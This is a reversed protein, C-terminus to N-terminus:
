LLRVCFMFFSSYSPALIASSLLYLSFFQRGYQKVEIEKGKARESARWSQIARKRKQRREKERAKMECRKSERGLEETGEQERQSNKAM